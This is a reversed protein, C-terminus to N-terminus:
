GRKRAYSIHLKLRVCIECVRKYVGGLRKPKSSAAALRDRQLRSLNSCSTASLWTHILHQSHPSPALPVFRRRDNLSVQPIHFGDAVCANM